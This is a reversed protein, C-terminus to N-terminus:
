HGDAPRTEWHGWRNPPIKASAPYILYVTNHSAAWAREVNARQYVQRVSHDLLNGAPDHIVVNGNETFGVCLVVHGTGISPRDPKLLRWPASIVVPIGAAIWDELEHAGDFRTVYARMDKFSGAFATNFPWNGTGDLGPDTVEAAVAPVDLNLEPRHLVESWHDLDMSLSAPSCWGQAGKFGLQTREPAFVTKGWAARNPTQSSPTVNTNCFSMGVFKLEKWSPSPNRLTFRLRVAEGPESLVVTDTDVKGFPDAQGPVSTRSVAKSGPAWLGLTYYRTLAGHHVAQAEVKLVAGTALTANWSVILQNWGIPSPIIPSVLTKEGEHNTARIFNAFSRLPVFASFGDAGPLPGASGLWVLLPLMAASIKFQRSRM